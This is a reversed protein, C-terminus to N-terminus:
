LDVVSEFAIDSVSSFKTIKDIHDDVSEERFTKNTLDRRKSFNSFEDKEKTEQCDICLGATPRALLRRQSIDDGCDECEGYSGDLIKQKAQEVKKLFLINRQDLRVNLTQEKHDNVKDVEDGSNTIQLVRQLEKNGQRDSLM